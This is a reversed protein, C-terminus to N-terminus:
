SRKTKRSCGRYSTQSKRIFFYTLLFNTCMAIGVTKQFVCGGFM